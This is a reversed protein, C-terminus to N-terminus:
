PLCHIYTSLLSCQFHFVKIGTETTLKPSVTFSSATVENTTLIDFMFLAYTALIVIYVLRRFPPMCMKLVGLRRSINIIRLDCFPHSPPHLCTGIYSRHARAEAALLIVVNFRIAIQMELNRIYTCIDECLIPLLPNVM